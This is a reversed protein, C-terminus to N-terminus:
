KKQSCKNRNMVRLWLIIYQIHKLTSLAPPRDHLRPFPEGSVEHREADPRQNQEEIGTGGGISGDNSGRLDLTGSEDTIFGAEFAVGVDAVGEGGARMCPQTELFSTHGTNLAAFGAMAGGAFMDGDTAPAASEDDIGAFVRLGTELAVEFGLGGKMKGLMMGEDFPFHVTDLAVVRVTQVDHFWFM